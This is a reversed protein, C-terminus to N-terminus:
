GYLIGLYVCDIWCTFLDIMVCTMFSRVRGGHLDFWRGTFVSGFLTLFFQIAAIWGVQSESYGKLQNNEWYTVFTGPINLIGFGVFLAFFVGIMCLIARWDGHDGPYEENESSQIEVGKEKDEKLSEESSTPPLTDMLPAERIGESTSHRQISGVHETM